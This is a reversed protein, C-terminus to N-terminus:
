PVIPKQPQPLEDEPREQDNEADIPITWLLHICRNVTLNHPSPLANSLDSLVKLANLLRNSM